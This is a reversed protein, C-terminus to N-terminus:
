CSVALFFELSCMAKEKGMVCELIVETCFAGDPLLAESASIELDRLSIVLHLIQMYVSSFFVQDPM